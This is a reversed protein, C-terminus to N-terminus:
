DAAAQQATHCPHIQDGGQANHQQDVDDIKAMVGVQAHPDIGSHQAEDIICLYGTIHDPLGVRNDPNGQTQQCRDCQHAQGQHAQLAHRQVARAFGNVREGRGPTARQHDHHRQQANQTTDLVYVHFVRNRQAPAIRKKRAVVLDGRQAQVRHNKEVVRDLDALRTIVFRLYAFM